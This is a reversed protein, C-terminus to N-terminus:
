GQKAQNIATRALERELSFYEYGDLEGDIRNELESIFARADLVTDQDPSDLLRTAYRAASVGCFSFRMSDIDISTLRHNEYASINYNAINGEVDGFCLAGLMITFAAFLVRWIRFQKFQRIIIVVMVIAMLIEFWSTYVRLLTLGKNSIYMIMKSFASAILLLTFVAVIITYAKLAKSCSGDDCRKVFTQLVIIVILNIFAVVCLEFFGRRAFEAYSYQEPLTGGFAATFYTFQSLIYVVYFICIPTVAVYATLPPMIRIANPDSATSELKKGSSFVAGFIIFGVPVACVLEFITLFSIDPLADLIGQMANSFAEDANMLLLIVVISLPVAIILGSIVYLINKGTKAKKFLSGFARPGDAFSQFPRVFVSKLMDGAFRNGLVEAGSLTIGLYFLLLFSYLAALFNVFGNSSVFPVACFLEAVAFIVIQLKNVPLKKLKVFVAGLVGVLAWFIGGWIGNAFGCVFHTFVFALVLSVASLIAEPLTYVPKAIPKVPMAAQTPIFENQPPINQVDPNEPFTNPNINNEM